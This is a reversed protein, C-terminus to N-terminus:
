NAFDILLISIISISIYDYIDFYIISTYFNM